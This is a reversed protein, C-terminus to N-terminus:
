LGKTPQERLHICRSTLTGLGTPEAWGAVEAAPGDKAPPRTVIAASEGGRWAASGGQPRGLRRGLRRRSLRRRAAAVRAEAAEAEAEATATM